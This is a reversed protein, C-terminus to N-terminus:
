SLKHGVGQFAQARRMAAFRDEPLQKKKETSSLGGVISGGGTLTPSAVAGGATAGGGGGIGAGSLSYGKGSFPVFSPSQAGGLSPAPVATASDQARARKSASAGDALSSVAGLSPSDDDIVIPSGVAGTGSLARAGATAGGGGGARESPRTPEVYDVPPAFDVEIDTEIISM